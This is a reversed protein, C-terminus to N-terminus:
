GEDFATLADGLESDLGDALRGALMAADDADITWATRRTGDWKPTGTLVLCPREIAAAAADRVFLFVSALLVVGIAALVVGLPAGAFGILDIGAVGRAGAAAASGPRRRAHAAL